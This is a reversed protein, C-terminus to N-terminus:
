LVGGFPGDGFGGLGFGYAVHDEIFDGYGANVLANAEADDIFYRYGGLYTVEAADIDEATPYEVQRYLGAEKLLSM